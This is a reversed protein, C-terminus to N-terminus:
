PTAEEEERGHPTVEEGKANVRGLGLSGCEAELKVLAAKAVALESRHRRISSKHGRIEAGLQQMRQTAEQLNM